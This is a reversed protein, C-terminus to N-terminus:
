KLHVCQTVSGSKIRIEPVHVSVCVCVCVCACVCVCVYTDCNFIIHVHILEALGHLKLMLDQGAEVQNPIRPPM